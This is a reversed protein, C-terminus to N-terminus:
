LTIPSLLAAPPPSPIDIAHHTMADSDANGSSQEVATESKAKRLRRELGLAERCDMKCIPCRASRETLWVDICDAHYTHNCSLARVLDEAEYSVLCISCEPSAYRLNDHEIEFSKRQQQEQKEDSEAAITGNILDINSQTLVMIPLLQLENKSFPNYPKVPRNSPRFQLVRRRREQASITTTSGSYQESPHSTPVFFKRVVFMLSITLVTVSIAVVVFVITQAQM